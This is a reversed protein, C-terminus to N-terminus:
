GSTKLLSNNIASILEKESFPKVLYGSAGLSLGYQIDKKESRATLFIFPISKSQENKKLHKLVEYGDVDSMSVDCVIIDPKELMAIEIGNTGNSATIVEFGTLSLLEEVNERIDNNDEIILIKKPM